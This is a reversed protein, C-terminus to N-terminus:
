IELVELMRYRLVCEACVPPHINTGNIDVVNGKGHEIAQECWKCNYDVGDACKNHKRINSLNTVIM